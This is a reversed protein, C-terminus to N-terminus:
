AANAKNLGLLEKLSAFIVLRRGDVKTTKLRGEAILQYLKTHRLGGVRETERITIALPELPKAENM